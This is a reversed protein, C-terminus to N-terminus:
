IQVEKKARCRTCAYDGERVDIMRVDECKLHVWGNCYNSRSCEVMPGDNDESCWCYKIEGTNKARKGRAAAAPNSLQRKYETLSPSSSYVGCVVRALDFRRADAFLCATNSQFNTANRCGCASRLPYILLLSLLWAQRTILCPM